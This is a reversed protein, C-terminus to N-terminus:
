PEKWRWQHLCRNVRGGVGSQRLSNRILPSLFLVGVSLSVPIKGLIDVSKSVLDHARPKVINVGNVLM